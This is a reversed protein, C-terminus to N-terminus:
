KDYKWIYTKYTKLKNTCCQYIGARQINLSEAAFSISKFKNILNNQLDFQLVPKEGKKNLTSKIIDNETINDINIKEEIIDSLQFRWIFGGSTKFEGVCCGSLSSRNTKENDKVADLISNYSRIFKGFIDYKLVKKTSVNNEVIRFASNSLKERESLNVEIFLPFDETYFRWIYGISKKAQGLCCKSITTPSCNFHESAIKGSSWERVYYGDLDYQLIKKQRSLVIKRKIDDTYIFESIGGITSNYGYNYTNFKSIYEQELINLKKILSLKDELIVRDLIEYKFNEPGYKKRANELKGGDSYVHKLNYFANKRGRENITQGIYQKNSPSTYM